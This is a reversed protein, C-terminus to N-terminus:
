RYKKTEFPYGNCDDKSIDKKLSTKATRGGVFSFGVSRKIILSAQTKM